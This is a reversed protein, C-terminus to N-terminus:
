SVDQWRSEKPFALRRCPKRHDSKDTHDKGIDAHVREQWTRPIRHVVVDGIHVVPSVDPFVLTLAELRSRELLSSLPLNHEVVDVWACPAHEEGHLLQQTYLRDLEM